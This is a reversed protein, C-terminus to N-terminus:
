PQLWIIKDQFDDDGPHGNMVEDLRAVYTGITGRNRPMSRSSTFILGFHSQGSAALDRALPDFDAVNETVLARREAILIQLLDPDLLRILEAREKVAHADHGRDRLQRAIEPAYHEDLCLRM